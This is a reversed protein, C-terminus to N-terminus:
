VKRTHLMRLHLSKITSGIFIRMQHFIDTTTNTRTCWSLYLLSFSRTGLFFSSSFFTIQKSCLPYILHVISALRLEVMQERKHHTIMTRLAYPSISRTLCGRGRPLAEFLCTVNEFIMCSRSRLVLPWLRCVVCFCEQPSFSKHLYIRKSSNM